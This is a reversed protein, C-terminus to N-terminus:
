SPIPIYPMPICTRSTSEWACGPRDICRIRNRIEYCARPNPYPDDDRRRNECMQSWDDWYCNRNRNCQWENNYDYCSQRERGGIPLCEMYEYDWRCGNRRNCEMSSNIDMCSRRTNRARCYYLEEDWRCNSNRRCENRGLDDCYDYSSISMNISSFGLEATGNIDAAFSTQILLGIVLLIGTRIGSMM